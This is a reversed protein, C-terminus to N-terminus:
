RDTRSAEKVGFVGSANPPLPFTRMRLAGVSIEAVDDNSATSPETLTGISQGM